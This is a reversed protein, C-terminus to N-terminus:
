TIGKKIIYNVLAEKRNSINRKIGRTRLHSEIIKQLTETDLLMLFEKRDILTGYCKGSDTINEVLNYFRVKKTIVEILNNFRVKKEVKKEINKEEIQINNEKIIEILDAKKTNWLGKQTKGRKAMTEKIVNRLFPVTFQKLNQQEM